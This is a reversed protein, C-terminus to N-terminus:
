EGVPLAFMRGYLDTLKNAEQAWNYKEIVALQGRRGMAAARNPNDILSKIAQHIDEPDLPDVLLGCEADEIIERWLPFDSAVVPIGALMYEFLKNPWADIHNPRPHFVIIGARCDHLIGNVGARPVVGRYDVRDWGPVRRCEENLSGPRFDGAMVLRVDETSPFLAMAACMEFVGRELTISGVYAVCASCLVRPVEVTAPTEDLVSPDEITNAPSFVPFNRIMTTKEIPFPEAQKPGVTVVHDVLAVWGKELLTYLTAVGQRMRLPIWHKDLIQLAVSEHVDYIVRYGLLRLVVGLPILEPDHLHYIRGHLRIARPVVRVLSLLFRQLRGKPIPLARIHVGFQDEDCNHPALLYVDYGSAALSQCEKEFIRGDFPPHVTTVHVVREGPSLAESSSLLWLLLMSVGLGHTLLTTGFDGGTFLMVFGVSVLALGFWVPVHGVTLHDVLSLLYGVLASLVVVGIWGFHMYSTAIYGANAWVTDVGYAYESILTPPLESFPYEFLFSLVGNSMRVFGATQFFEYYQFDLFAPVFLLRRAFLSVPNVNGFILFFLASLSVSVTTMWVILRPASKFRSLIVLGIILVPAFLVSRHSSVGFLVVQALLVVPVLKHHKRLIAWALMTINFIRFSWSNIYAMVGGDLSALASRFEYVRAMDLNFLEYAGSSIVFVTTALLGTICLALAISPGSKLRPIKPWPIRRATAVVIFCSFMMYMFSRPSDTLSYYTFLPAFTVSAFLGLLLDSPRELRLPVLLGIIVTLLYSEAWKVVSIDLTFGTSAFQPAVVFIYTLDLVVRLILIAAVTRRQEIVLSLLRRVLPSTDSKIRLYDRLRM